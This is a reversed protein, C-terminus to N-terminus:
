QDDELAKKLEQRARSLRSKVTGESVALIQAIEKVRFSEFYYLLIVEKFGDNLHYVFELLDFSSEPVYEETPFASFDETLEVRKRKRLCTKSENAIIQFLWAKMKRSNKLESLHRYAKLISESVVDEADERNLVISYALRFMATKNQEITEIFLDDLKQRKGNM